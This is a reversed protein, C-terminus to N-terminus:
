MRRRQKRAGMGRLQKNFPSGNRGAERAALKSFTVNVKENGHEDAEEQVEPYYGPPANIINVQRTVNPRTGATMAASAANTRIVEGGRLRMLEPGREGVWAWGPPASDTGGAFGPIGTLWNSYTTNPAWFSSTPSVGGFLSGLGGLLNDFLGGSGKGSAGIGVQSLANGVKGFGSGLVGLDQSAAGVSGGFSKLAEEAGALRGTFNHAAEPNAWSFGSPREFGAFAATAGRVDKSALLAQWARNEPGMLEQYAFEHQALANSLNGKGGIATFLSNRRDNHQYLGFANGGDGVALPNFASEAKINGLIGAVQHDALGKSKWFNWASQAGGNPGTGDSGTMVASFPSNGNAAAQMRTVGDVAGFGSVGGNVMVTGANIVASGVTTGMAGGVISAPDKGAGGTLRNWIGSFGGLDSLTGKNSGLIANELPNNVGISLITDTLKEATKELAGSLDGKLLDKTASRISGSIGSGVESWADRLREVEATQDAIAQTNARIEDARSTGELGERRIRQEAELMALARRRVEDSQGVLQIEARLNQLRDEQGRVIGAAAEEKRQQALQEYSTKLDTVIGQLRQKEDGEAMAAAEVLGRLSLEEQLIRNADASTISGGAVLQNLRVRTELEAQMDRTQAAGAAITEEIIRTRVRLAEEAIKATDTEQEAMQLRMRRQELDARVLPNLENQIQIDLRDLELSRAQRNILADLVRTKAELAASVRGQDIGEINQGSRLASIENQLTEIRVADSNAGSGNAYAEVRRGRAIESAARQREVALQNQRRQTEQLTDLQQRAADAKDDAGNFTRLFWSQGSFRQLDAQAKAMQEEASPGSVARDVARGMWEYADSAGNAISNWARGLATVAQEADALQPPLAQLLVAQAESERNQAALNTVQRATAANILGYQQYLIKAANAPDAFMESLKKGAETADVGITAGFDKSLSILEEFHQAGIRGTRLFQAEMSRAASVSIGAAAAGGRAAAEMEGMTGTTARGLGSAATEVEKTAKLYDYWAKAGLLATAAVGGLAINVPTLVRLMAELAASDAAFIQAIQPGQQLIVQMAPMGLAFSQFVDTGQYMLNTLQYSPLGNVGRKGQRDIEKATADYRQRALLQSRALEDTTIAGRKALGDYEALEANLRNQAAGLPDIQARLATVKRDLEESARAAEEFAAASGRASTGFGNVGLRQNLDSSFASGEQQARLRQLEELRAFEASFVSASSQASSGAGPFFRRNLDSSFNDAQQQARLRNIEDQRSLQEAFVAASDRASAGPGQFLGLRDNFASQARDAAAADRAEQALRAYEERQRKAAAAAADHKLVIAELAREYGGTIQVGLREAESLDNLEDTIRQASVYTPDFQRRLQEIRASLATVQEAGGAQNLRQNVNEIATALGTYGRAALESADAILGFRRQMGAYALELHEVSVANTDQSKALRMVETNFKAASGYGDIYTRSLREILPVASSVKIKMEEVAAGAAKSSQSGAKDANVKQNMGAVYRGADFDSTVRLTRLEVVM